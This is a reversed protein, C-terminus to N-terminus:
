HISWPLAALHHARSVYKLIVTYSVSFIPGARIQFQFVSEPQSLIILHRQSANHFHPFLPFKNNTWCQGISRIVRLTAFTFITWTIYKAGITFFSSEHAKNILECFYKSCRGHISRANLHQPLFLVRSFLGLVLQNGRERQYYKTLFKEWMWGAKGPSLVRPSHHCSHIEEAIRPHSSDCVPM